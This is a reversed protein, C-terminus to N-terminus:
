MVIVVGLWLAAVSRTVLATSPEALESSRWVALFLFINWPLLMFFIALAIAAPANAAHLIIALLAAPINIATGGCLMDRWFTIMLPTEGHWRSRFFGTFKAPM